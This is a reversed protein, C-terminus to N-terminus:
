RSAIGLAAWDHPTKRWVEAIVEKLSIEIWAQRSAIFRMPKGTAPDIIIYQRSDRNKFQKFGNATEGMYMFEPCKEMGILDELLKWDQRTAAM